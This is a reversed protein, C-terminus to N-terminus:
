DFFNFFDELKIKKKKSPDGIILYKKTIKYVVAFHSM